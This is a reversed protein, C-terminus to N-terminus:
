TGPALGPEILADVDPVEDAVDLEPLMEATKKLGEVNLAGDRSYLPMIEEYTREAVEPTINLFEVAAAKVEDPNAEMWEVTEFYAALLKKATEKNESLWKEGAEFVGHQAGPFVEAFSGIIEAEGQAELQAPVDIGFVFVDTAGQKIAAMQEPAGGIAVIEMDKKPDLGKADATVRAAFDTLSGFRTVGFKAGKLSDLDKVKGGKKAAFYMPSETMYGAFVKMPVGQAAAAVGDFGTGLGVDVAGGALAKVLDAGGQFAVIEVDLGHKEFIGEDKAIQPAMAVEFSNGVTLGLKLASSDGSGGSSGSAAEEDDGCGAVGLAACLALAAVTRRPGTWAKRVM